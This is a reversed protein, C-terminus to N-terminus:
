KWMFVPYEDLDGRIYRALLLSQVYPVLGWEVKGNLFPHKIVEKKKNQWANLVAKRGNENLLVAGNEKQVFDSPKIMKRNIMSLVFRDAFVSRLEEVLDLALSVRGPHECHLFGVYPDLGVSSLAAACENTLLTYAFSLIANVNDMPPRRNRNKFFFVDKNNLILEDFVSFYQSAANGEIGLVSEMNDVTLLREIAGDLNSTVKKIEEINVQMPHDRTARNLVWKSNYIKGIIMNRAIPLARVSDDSIRYQEKRLIVNGKIEGTVSALFRGTQSMFCLSIGKHSCAGMLAPSAGTYGFTVIGELNHLPFRAVTEGKELVVVNEGELSLYREPSIVYLTNLLKRM